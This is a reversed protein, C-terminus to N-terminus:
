GSSAPDSYIYLLDSRGQLVTVRLHLCCDQPATCSARHRPSLGPLVPFQVPAVPHSESLSSVPFAYPIEHSWLLCLVSSFASPAPFSAPASSWGPLQVPDPVPLAPFVPLQSMSRPIQVSVSYRCWPYPLAPVPVSLDRFHSEAINGM